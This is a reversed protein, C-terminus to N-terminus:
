ITDGLLQTKWKYLNYPDPVRRGTEWASVTDTKVGLRLALHRQSWGRLHRMEVLEDVVEWDVHRARSESLRQYYANVGRHIRGSCEEDPRHGCVGCRGYRDRAPM